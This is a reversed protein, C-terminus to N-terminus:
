SYPIYKIRGSKRDGDREAKPTIKEAHNFSSIEVSGNLLATEFLLVTTIHRLMLNPVWYM